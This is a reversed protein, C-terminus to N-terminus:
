ASIILRMEPRRLQGCHPAHEINVRRRRRRAASRDSDRDDAAPAAARHRPLVTAAAGRPTRARSAGVPAASDPAPAAACWRHRHGPPRSTVARRTEATTRAPSRRRFRASCGIASSRAGGARSCPATARAPRGAAGDRPAHGSDGAGYRTRTRDATGAARTEPGSRDHGPRTTPAAAAAGATGATAAAEIVALIQAGSHNIIGEPLPTAAELQQWIARRACCSTACRQMPCSGPARGIPSSIARQERWAALARALRQRAQDLELFGKFRRWAQQPDVEFSGIANVDGNGARVLGLAWSSSGSACGIACRCCIACTM